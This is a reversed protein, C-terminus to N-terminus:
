AITTCSTQMKTPRRHADTDLTVNTNAIMKPHVGQLKKATSGGENTIRVKAPLGRNRVIWVKRGM